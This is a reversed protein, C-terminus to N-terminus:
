RMARDHAEMPANAAAKIVMSAAARPFLDQHLARQTLGLEGAALLDGNRQADVLEARVQARTKGVPAQQHPYRSPYLENLKQNLEGAALLDGSRQAAEFEARVESRTRRQALLDAGPPLNRPEVEGRMLAGNRVADALEQRVEDRTKSQAHAGACSAAVLLALATSTFKSQM